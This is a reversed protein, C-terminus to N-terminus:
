VVDLTVNDQFSALKTAMDKREGAMQVSKKVNFGGTLLDQTEELELGSLEPYCYYIFVVSALTVFAFFIFTGSPTLKEMMTLFTMSLILSGSWNTATAYSTGLGRVSQPFLESQQWPVNGLGSAYFAVFSMMGVVTLLNWVARSATVSVSEDTNFDLHSFTWACVLLSVLMGPVTWLMIRRRGVRDIVLFAVITFVFNTGAVICSVGISNQFGIMEFITGSFYMLANFGTLQQIGQLGCAIILARLNSPVTHIEKIKSWIKHLRSENELDLDSNFSSLEAINAAILDNPADLYIKRLVEAAQNTKGVMILYRPTDPLFLFAVLQVMSPILSFGVLFRWTIHLYSFLAGLAYAILQGGTIALCNIIVMRGRFKSPALESLYLPAILSGIGVGIGMVLRGAIMFHVTKAVCQMSAGAIFLLNCGMIAPKRGWADALTGAVIAGFLAGCSTASTIYERNTLSLGDGGLDAGISVLVSSIYGTDYGFMFGSISALFTLLITLPSPKVAYGNLISSTNESLASSRSVSADHHTRSFLTRGSLLSSNSLGRERSPIAKFGQNSM